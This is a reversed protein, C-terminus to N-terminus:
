FSSRRRGSRPIEEDPHGDSRLSVLSRVLAVSPHDSFREPATLWSIAPLKGENVDKRFQYLVDGKPVQMTHSKGQTKFSLPHLAHYDPDETNTVFAAHHLAKERASLQQYRADGSNVLSAQIAAIRSRAGELQARLKAAAAPDKEASLEAELKVM